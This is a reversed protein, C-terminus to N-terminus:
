RGADVSKRLALPPFEAARQPAVPKVVVRIACRLPSLELRHRVRKQYETYGPLNRALLREEDFLRWILFPMM